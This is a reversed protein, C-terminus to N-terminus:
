LENFDPNDKHGIATYLLKSGPLTRGIHVPFDYNCCIGAHKMAHHFRRRIIPRMQDPSIQLSGKPWCQPTHDCGERVLEIAQESTLTSDSAMAKHKLRFCVKRGAFDTPAEYVSHFPNECINLNCLYNRVNNATIYATWEDQTAPRTLSLWAIQSYHREIVETAKHKRCYVPLMLRPVSTSFAFCGYSEEVLGADIEPPCDHPKFTWPPTKPNLLLM